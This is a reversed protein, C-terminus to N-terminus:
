IDLLTRGCSVIGPADPPWYWHLGTSLTDKYLFWKEHTEKNIM